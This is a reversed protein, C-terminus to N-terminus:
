EGFVEILEIAGNMAYGQGRRNDVSMPLADSAFRVPVRFEFDATLPQGSTWATSPTFLGTLTDLTGAKAVGSQRLEFGASVPKTIPRSFSSSGFAYPMVLQVATSGSPANGLSVNVAQYDTADRALFADKMGRVSVFAAKIQSLYTDNLINQFPLVFRHRVLSSNANRTEHGNRLSWIKTNMMTDVSWGFAPCVDIEVSVLSM